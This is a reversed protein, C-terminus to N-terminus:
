AIQFDVGRGIDAFDFLHKGFKAPHDFAASYDAKGLACIQIVARKGLGNLGGGTGSKPFLNRMGVRHGIQWVM